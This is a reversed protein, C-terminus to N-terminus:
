VTDLFDVVKLNDAVLHAKLRRAVESPLVLVFKKPSSVNKVIELDGVGWLLAEERGEISLEIRLEVLGKMEALVKWTQFWAKRKNPPPLRPPGKLAWRFSFRQLDLIRSPPLLTPLYAVVDVDCTDFTNTTYMFQMTDSYMQRCSLLMGFFGMIPWPNPGYNKIYRRCNQQCMQGEILCRAGRMKREEIWWHIVMGGTVFEMIMDKIEQPLCLLPSKSKQEDFPVHFSLARRKPAFFGTPIISIPEPETRRYGNFKEEVWAIAKTWIPSNDSPVYGLVHVM